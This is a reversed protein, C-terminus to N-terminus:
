KAGGTQSAEKSAWLLDAVDASLAFRGRRGPINFVPVGVRGVALARQFASATRYGLAERLQVHDLVTGYRAFLEDRLCQRECEPSISAPPRFM